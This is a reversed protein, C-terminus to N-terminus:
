SRRRGGGTETWISGANTKGLDAHRIEREQCQLISITSRKLRESGRGGGVPRVLLEGPRGIEAPVQRRCLSVLACIARGQKVESRKEGCRRQFSTEQRTPPQLIRCAGINSSVTAGNGVLDIELRLSPPIPEGAALFCDARSSHLGFLKYQQSSSRRWHRQRHIGREGWASRIKVHNRENTFM